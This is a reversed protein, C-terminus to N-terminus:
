KLLDEIPIDYLSKIVKDIVSSGKYDGMSEIMRSYDRCEKICRERVRESIECATAAKLEGDLSALQRNKSEIRDAAMRNLRCWGCALGRFKGSSECHECKRLAAILEIDNM